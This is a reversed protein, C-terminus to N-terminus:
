LIRLERIYIHNSSLVIKIHQIFTKLLIIYVQIESPHHAYDDIIISDNLQYINMRRYVGPFNELTSIFDSTKLGAQEAMAIAAITNM